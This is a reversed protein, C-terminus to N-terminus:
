THRTTNNHQQTTQRSDIEHIWHLSMDRDSDSDGSGTGDWAWRLEGKWSDTIEASIRRQKM